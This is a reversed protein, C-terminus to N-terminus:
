KEHKKVELLFPCLNQFCHNVLQNVLWWKTIHKMVISFESRIFGTDLSVTVGGRFASMCNEM